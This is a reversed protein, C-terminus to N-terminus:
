VRVPQNIIHSAVSALHKEEDYPIKDRWMAFTVKVWMNSLCRVAHHFKKGQSRKMAFQKNAWQSKSISSRALQYFATRGGKNCGWRFRVSVSRGSRATYPSTGYLAGVESAAKFDRSAYLVLLKAGLIYSAGPLSTFIDGHPINGM